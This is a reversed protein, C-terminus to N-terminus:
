QCSSGSIIYYTMYYRFQKRLGMTSWFNHALASVALLHAEGFVTPERIISFLELFNSLTIPATSASIYSDIDNQLQATNLKTVAESGGRMRKFGSRSLASVLQQQMESRSGVPKMGRINLQYQLQDSTLSSVPVEVTHAMKVLNALWPFKRPQSPDPKPGPQPQGPVSQQSQPVCDRNGTRTTLAM